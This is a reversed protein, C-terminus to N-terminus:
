RFGGKGRVCDELLQGEDYDSMPNWHVTDQNFAAQTIFHLSNGLEHVQTQVMPAIDDYATYNTYPNSSLTLGALQANKPLLKQDPFSNQLEVLQHSSFGVYNQVTINSNNGNNDLTDPGY